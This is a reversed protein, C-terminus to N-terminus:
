GSNPQREMNLKKEPSWTDEGVLEVRVARRNPRVAATASTVPASTAPGSWSSCDVDVGATAASGVGGSLTLTSMVVSVPLAAM